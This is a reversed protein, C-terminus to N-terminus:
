AGPGDPAPEEGAPSVGAERLLATMEEIRAQCRGYVSDPTWRSGDWEGAPVGTLLEIGEAISSVAWIHFRGEDVAEVVADALQLDKVNAEPIMVGQTGTLGRRRCVEFFGEVKENVGGIPQIGGLQDVSGTVAVDQRLPVGSLASLIAYIETSSASDGDIGGYSQEFTISCAMSLPVRRAFTGRLFGTLISVGKDHTPGSLGARREINIVGERGVGVQATIRSPNGFRHHGLDFVALGNVQGVRSGETAIGIVGEVIWHRSTEESLGHRRRRAEVAREVHAGSVADAGEGRALFSAERYVDALDSFRSSFHRRFHAQRVAVALIAAMGARDLPVLDEDDAVKRLVSLIARAEEPGPEMLSDFDALVKFIKPFDKDFRYLLDYVNRDGIVVVKVDLPVAEPKLTTAGLLASEPSQIQVRRFKLARKLSPWVRPEMLVDDANLVLFGGNARLLSGARIDLFSTGKEGKASLRREITGFLNTFTPETEIEVPRGEAQSNDVALNVRWREYPDGPAEGGDEAMFLDVNDELDRRVADLYADVAPDGVAHRARAVVVDLLPCIVEKRVAMVREQMQRRLETVRAFVNEMEAMLEDHRAALERAMAASLKGAEVQADLQEMPVPENEVLPYIEPRTVTGLQIQVLQFGFEKVRNEFGGVLETERAKLEEVAQGVRRRFERDNVIERLSEALEDILADMAERLRRGKSAALSIVAPREPCHFNYVFCIDNPPEHDGKQRDLFRKITTLRGTGSLGTVFINYGVGGIGLGFDIAEVARDQGVISDAPEIATLSEWPLWDEPCRWVLDQAKLKRAM